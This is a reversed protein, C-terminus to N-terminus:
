ADDSPRSDMIARSPKFRVTTSPKADLWEGTRPNRHPRGQRHSLRFTGLGRLEVRRGRALSEGITRIVTDVAIRAYERHLGTQAVVHEVLGAKTVAQNRGLDWAIRGALLPALREPVFPARGGQARAQTQGRCAATTHQDRM